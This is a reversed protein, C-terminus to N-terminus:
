ACITFRGGAGGQGLSQIREVSRGEATQRRREVKRSTLGMRNVAPVVGQEFIPFVGSWKPELRRAGRCRSPLGEALEFDSVTRWFRQTSFHISKEVSDKPNGRRPPCAVVSAGYHKAVPVFSSQVIGTKSDVVTAM